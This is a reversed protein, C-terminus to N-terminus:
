SRRQATGNGCKRADAAAATEQQTLTETRSCGRSVTRGHLARGGRTTGLLDDLTHDLIGEGQWTSVNVQERTLLIFRGLRRQILDFLYQELGIRLLSM